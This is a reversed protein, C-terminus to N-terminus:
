YTYNNNKLWTAFEAKTKAGSKKQLAQKEKLPLASFDRKSNTTAPKGQLQQKTPAASQTPNKVMEIAIGYKSNMQEREAPTINAIKAGDFSTADTYAGLKKAYERGANMIKERKDEPLGGGVANYLEAENNFMIYPFSAIKPDSQSKYFTETTKVYIKGDASRITELINNDVNEVGVNGDIDKGTVPFTGLKYSNLADTVVADKEQGNIVVKKPKYLQPKGQFVGSILDVLAGGERADADFGAARKAAEQQYADAGIGKREINKANYKYIQDAAYLEQPTYKEGNPGTFKQAKDYYFAANPDAPMGNADTGALMWDSFKNYIKDKFGKYNNNIWGSALQASKEYPLTETTEKSVYHGKINEVDLGITTPHTTAEKTGAIIIEDLSEKKPKIISGTKKLFGIREPLPLIRASAALTNTEDVDVKTPDLPKNVEAFQEKHNVSENILFQVNAQKRKLEVMGQRFEPSSPDLSFVKAAYEFADNAAPTIVESIDQALAGKSDFKIDAFMKAREKADLMAKAAKQKQWNDIDQNAKLLMDLPQANPYDFIVAGVGSTPTQFPTSGNVVQM